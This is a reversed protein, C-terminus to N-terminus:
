DWRCFVKILPGYFDLGRFDVLKEVWIGKDWGRWPINTPDKDKKKLYVSISVVPM